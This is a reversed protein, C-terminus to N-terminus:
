AYCCFIKFVESNDAKWISSYLFVKKYICLSDLELRERKNLSGGCITFNMDSNCAGTQEQILRAAHAVIKWDTGSSNLCHLAVCSRIHM